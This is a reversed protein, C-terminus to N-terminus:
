APRSAAEAAARALLRAEPALGLAEELALVEDLLRARAALSAAVAAVDAQFVSLHYMSVAAVEPLADGNADACVLAYVPDPCALRAALEYHAHGGRRRYVAVAGSYAGLLLEPEGDGDVDCVAASTLADFEDSHPLPTQEAALQESSPCQEVGGFLTAYGLASCALLQWGAPAPSSPSAAAAPRLLALASVPGDMFVHTAAKGGASLVVRGDQCGAAVLRAGDILRADFSMVGSSCAGRLEPLPYADSALAVERWAAQRAQGAAAAAAAAAAEGVLRFVHLEHDAGGVVVDPVREGPRPLAAVFFPTFGLEIVTADLVLSELPADGACRTGYFILQRSVAQLSSALEARCAAVVLVPARRPTVSPPAQDAAVAVSVIDAREQLKPTALRTVVEGRGESEGEGCRAVLLARQAGLLVHQVGRHAFAAASYVNCASPLSALRALRLSM